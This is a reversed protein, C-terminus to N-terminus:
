GKHVATPCMGSVIEESSRATRLAASRSRNSRCAPHAAGAPRCSAPLKHPNQRPQLPIPDCPQTSCRAQRLSPQICAATRSTQKRADRESHVSTRGVQGKWPHASSQSRCAARCGAFQEGAAAAGRCCLSATAPGAAAASATASPPVRRCRARRSVTRFPQQQPTPSVHYRHRRAARGQRQQTSEHVVMATRKSNNRQLCSALSRSM